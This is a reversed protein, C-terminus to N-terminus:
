RLLSPPYAHSSVRTQNVYADIVAPSYQIVPCSQYFNSLTSYQTLGRNWVVHYRTVSRTSGFAGTSNENIFFDPLSMTSANGEHEIAVFDDFVGGSDTPADYFM